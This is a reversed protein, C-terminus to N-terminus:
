VRLKVRSQGLVVEVESGEYALLNLAISTHSGPPITEVGVRPSPSEVGNIFVRIWATNIPYQWNNEVDIVVGELAKVGIDSYSIRRLGILPSLAPIQLRSEAGLVRILVEHPNSLKDSPILVGGLGFLVEAKVEEYPGISLVGGKLIVDLRERDLYAEIDNKSVYTPIRSNNRLLLTAGRILLGNISPSAELSTGKIDIMISIPMEFEVCSGNESCAQLVLRDKMLCERLPRLRLVGERSNILGVDLVRCQSDKLIVLLPTTDAEYKVIMIPSGGEDIFEVAKAKFVTYIRRIRKILRGPQGENM